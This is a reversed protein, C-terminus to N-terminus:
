QREITKREVVAPMGENAAIPTRNPLYSMVKRRIGTQEIVTSLCDEALFRATGWNSEEGNYSRSQKKTTLEKTKSDYVILEFSVNSIMHNESNMSLGTSPFTTESFRRLVPCVILDADLKKALPEMVDQLKAKRKNKRYTKEWLNQMVKKSETASIYDIAKLTKNLPLHVARSIKLELEVRVNRDPTESLFIIPLRALRVPKKEEAAFATMSLALMLLLLISLCRRM